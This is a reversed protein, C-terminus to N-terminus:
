PLLWGILNGGLFVFMLAGTIMAFGVGTVMTGWRLATNSSIIRAFNAVFFILAVAGGAAMGNAALILGQLADDNGFIVEGFGLGPEELTRLFVWSSVSSIIPGILTPFSGSAAVFLVAFICSIGILAWLGYDLLMRVTLPALYDPIRRFESIYLSPALGIVSGNENRFFHIPQNDVLTANYIIRDESRVFVDKGAYSYRNGNILLVGDDDSLEVTVRMGMLGYNYLFAVANSFTRRQDDYVGVYESINVPKNLGKQPTNRPGLLDTLIAERMGLGSLPPRKIWGNEGGESDQGGGGAGNLFVGLEDDILLMQSEFGVWGGAHEVIRHGNWDSVFFQMAIGSKDSISYHLIKSLRQRSLLPLFGEPGHGLLASMFLAMDKASAHVAGAPAIVPSIPVYDVPHFDGEASFNFATTLEPFEREGNPVVSTMGLPKFVENKLFEPYSQGTIDEILMGLLSAGFNSYSREKGIPRVMAPMQELAAEKSVPSPGMSTDALRWFYDEFGATHSLLDRIRVEAGNNQPLKFRVLYHNVPEDVSSIRGDSLLKAIATATFTKTLSGIRVHDQEPDPAGEGERVTGYGKLLLFDGNYVVAAQYASARHEVTWKEIRADFRKAFEMARDRDITVEAADTVSPNLCALVVGAVWCVLLGRRRM